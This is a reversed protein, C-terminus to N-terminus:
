AAKNQHMRRKHTRRSQSRNQLEFVVYSSLSIVMGFIVLALSVNYPSVQLNSYVESDFFGIGCFAVSIGFLCLIKLM